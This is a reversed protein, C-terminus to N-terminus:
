DAAQVTDVTTGQHIEAATGLLYVTDGAELTENESPFALPVGSRDIVLVRGPLWSAFEGQLEGGASVEVSTVTADAEWLNTALERADDTADPRTLIRYEEEPDFSGVLDADVTVTAIDDVTARLTGEALIQPEPEQSWVEVPDGVSADDAPDARTAVAAVGPTLLPSLGEPTSGVACETVTGDDDIEVHVRDVSYDQELRNTLRDTLESVSLPQPFRFQEGAFERKTAQEVTGYGDLDEIREPLTVSQVLDASKITEAGPGSRDIRQISFTDCAVYDGIRRGGEATVAGVIFISLIYIGTTPHFLSRPGVLSTSSVAQALLLAGPLSLGVVMAALMPLQRKTQWRFGFTATLAVVTSFLAFGLVDIVALIRWSDFVALPVTM